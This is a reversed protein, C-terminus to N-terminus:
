PKSAHAHGPSPFLPTLGSRGSLQIIPVRLLPHRPDSTIVTLAVDQAPSAQFGQPFLINLVFDRGAEQEAIKVDVGNVSVIPESLHVPTHGFNRIRIPYRYDSELPGSPLRILAPSVLIAPRPIIAVPINLSPIDTSSTKLRLVYNYRAGPAAGASTVHLQFERGPRVTVLEAKLSPNPMAPPELTIDQALNNIIRVVRTEETEEGQLRVFELYRPVLDIPRLITAQIQLFYTDREPDNCTVTIPNNIHGSLNAANLRIPIQGVHGPQVQHDWEGAVTCACETKVDKIELTADGANLFVFEHWLLDTPKVKGFYFTTEYFQM